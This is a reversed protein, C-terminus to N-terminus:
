EFYAIVAAITAEITTQAAIIIKPGHKKAESATTKGICFAISNTLSNQQTYSQVASPSFFLIGKFNQTFKQLNYSTKYVVKETFSVSSENLIKPLESRRLNGCFFLFHEKKATKVIFNALESANEATKNVKQNESIFISATKKGVCFVNSMQVKEAVLMKAAHQSTVIVNKVKKPFVISEPHISIASYRHLLFKDKSFLAQQTATLQKTVLLAIPQKEKLNNVAVQM